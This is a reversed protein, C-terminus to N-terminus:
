RSRFERIVLFYWTKKLKTLFTKLQVKEIHPLSSQPTSLPQMYRNWFIANWVGMWVASGLSWAFARKWSSWHDDYVSRGVSLYLTKYIRSDMPLFLSPYLVLSACPYYQPLAPAALPHTVPLLSTACPHFHEHLCEGTHTIDWESTCASARKGTHEKARNSTIVNARESVLAKAWESTKENSCESTPANSRESMLIHM